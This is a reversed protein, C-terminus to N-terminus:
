TTEFEIQSDFYTNLVACLSGLMNSNEFKILINYSTEKINGEIQITSLLDPFMLKLFMFRKDRTDLERSIVKLMNEKTIIACSM